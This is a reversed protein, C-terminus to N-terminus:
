LFHYITPTSFFPLFVALYTWLTQWAGTCATRDNLSISSLREGHRQRDPWWRWEVIMRLFVSHLGHVLFHFVALLFHLFLAPKRTPTYSKKTRRNFSLLRFPSTSYEIHRPRISKYLFVRYQSDTILIMAVFATACIIDVRWKQKPLHASSPRPMSRNISMTEPIRRRVSKLGCM